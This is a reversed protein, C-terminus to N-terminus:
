MRLAFAKKETVRLKTNPMKNCNGHRVTPWHFQVFGKHPISTADRSRDRFKPPSILWSSWQFSWDKPKTSLCSGSVKAVKRLRHLMSLRRLMLQMRSKKSFVEFRCAAPFNM